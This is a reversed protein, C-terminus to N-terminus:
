RIEKEKRKNINMNAEIKKKLIIELLDANKENSISLISILPSYLEMAM